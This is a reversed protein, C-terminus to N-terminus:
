KFRLRKIQKDRLKNTPMMGYVAMKLVEQPKDVILTKLTRTKLGGLYGSHTYYKKQEVKRGTIKMKAVNTITVFDGKDEHRAFAPKLKGRLLDAVKVALRGLVQGEADITINQRQLLEAM